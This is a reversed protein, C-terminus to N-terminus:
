AAAVEERTSQGAREHALRELALRDLDTFTIGNPHTIVLDLVAWCLSLCGQEGPFRGIVKTRRRIGGLSRELLNTSRWRRRHRLLPERLRRASLDRGLALWDEESERMGLCVSLLVREVARPWAGRASYARRSEPPPVPLYITNLYLTVIRTQSLDRWSAALRDRLDRCIRMVIVLAAILPQPLCLVGIRARLATLHRPAKIRVPCQRSPPRLLDRSGCNADRAIRHATMRTHETQPRSFAVPPCQSPTACFRDGM